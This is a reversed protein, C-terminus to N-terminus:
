TRPSRPRQGPSWPLALLDLGASLGLLTDFGSTAGMGTLAELRHAVADPNHFLAALAAVVLEPAQGLCAAHLASAGFLTTRLPARERILTLLGPLAAVPDDGTSQLALVLGSLVDDGAPTLGPGAGLLAEVGSSWAAPDLSRLGELVQELATGIHQEFAGVALRDRPLIPSATPVAHDSARSGPPHRSLWARALDSGRRIDSSSPALDILAHRGDWVVASQLDVQWGAHVIDLTAPFYEVALGIWDRSLSPPLSPIGIGLPWGMSDASLLVALGGFEVALGSSFVGCVRGLKAAKLVQLALNGATTAKVQDSSRM